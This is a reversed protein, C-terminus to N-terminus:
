SNKDQFFPPSFPTMKKHRGVQTVFYWNEKFSNSMHGEAKSYLEIPGFYV